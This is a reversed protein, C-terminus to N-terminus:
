NDCARKGWRPITVDGGAAKPGMSGRGRQGESVKM